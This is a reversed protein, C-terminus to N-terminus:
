IGGLTGQSAFDGEGWTSFWQKLPVAQFWSLLDFEFKPFIQFNFPGLLVGGEHYSAAQKRGLSKRLGPPREM